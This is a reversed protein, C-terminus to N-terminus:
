TSVRLRVSGGTEPTHNYAPGTAQGSFFDGACSSLAGPSDAAGRRSRFTSIGSPVSKWRCSANSKRFIHLAIRHGGAPTCQEVPTLRPTADVDVTALLVYRARAALRMAQEIKETMREVYERGAFSRGTMDVAM